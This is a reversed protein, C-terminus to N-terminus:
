FVSEWNSIGVELLKSKMYTDFWNCIDHAKIDTPVIEQMCSVPDYSSFHDNSESVYVSFLRIDSKGINEGDYFIDIPPTDKTVRLTNISTQLNTSFIM